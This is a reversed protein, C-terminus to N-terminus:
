DGKKMKGKEKGYEAKEEDEGAEEMDGSSREDERLAEDWRVWRQIDYAPMCRVEKPPEEKWEIEKKVGRKGELDTWKDVYGKKNKIQKARETSYELNVSPVVAIRSYNHFWMDKCFLSPEGQTCEGDHPARFSIEGKLFPSATFVAAGNWCSFVQFPNGTQLRRATTRDNWFLNWASDWSGSTPIDFFADGNMGRAVWVDYFTPDRALTTWDMGCTMHASQVHRQHILELLDDPCPLVDNLFLITTNTTYLHPNSTLPSLAQNRLSALIEIREDHDHRPDHPDTDNTQIYYKLGLPELHPRLAALIEYTGDTSRGEVISLACYDPGLFRITELISNLLRPLIAANQHLDLAFFYRLPANPEPLKTPNDQLYGYRSRDPIDCELRDFHEDDADLIAQTYPPTEALLTSNVSKPLPSLDEESPASLPKQQPPVSDEVNVHAAVKLDKDRAASTPRPFDVLDIEDDYSSLRSNFRRSELIFFIALSVWAALWLSFRRKM